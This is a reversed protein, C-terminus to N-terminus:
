YAEVSLALVLMNGDVNMKEGNRDTSSGILRKLSFELNVLGVLKWALGTHIQATAGELHADIYGSMDLVNYGAGIGIYPRLNSGLYFYKRAAVSLVRYFAINDLQQNTTNKLDYEWRNSEIGAGVATGDEFRFFAQFGANFLKERGKSDRFSINKGLITQSQHDLNYAHYSPTFLKEAAAYPHIGLGSTVVMLNLAYIEFRKFFDQKPM